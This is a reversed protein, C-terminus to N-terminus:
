QLLLRPFFTKGLIIASRVSVLSHAAVYESYFFLFFHVVLLSHIILIIDGILPPDINGNKGSIFKTSGSAPYRKTVLDHIKTVM